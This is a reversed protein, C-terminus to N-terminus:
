TLTELPLEHRIASTLDSQGWSPCFLALLSARLLCGHSLTGKTSVRGVQERIWPSLPPGPSGPSGPLAPCSCCRGGGGLQRPAGRSLRGTRAAGELGLAPLRHWHAGPDRCGQVCRCLAASSEAQILIQMSSSFIM